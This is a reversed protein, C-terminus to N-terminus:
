FTPLPKANARYFEANSGAICIRLEGSSRIESLTRAEAAVSFTAFLWALLNISGFVFCARFGQKKPFILDQSM